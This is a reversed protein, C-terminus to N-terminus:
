HELVFIWEAHNADELREEIQSGSYALLRSGTSQINWNSSGILM